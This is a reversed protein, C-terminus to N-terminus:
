FHSLWAVGMDETLPPYPCMKITSVGIGFAFRLPIPLNYHPENFVFSTFNSANTSNDRSASPKINLLKSRFRNGFSAKPNM